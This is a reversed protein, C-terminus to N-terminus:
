QAIPRNGDSEIQTEDELVEYVSCRDRFYTGGPWPDDVYIDLCGSLRSSMRDIVLYTGKGIIHVVPPMPDRIRDYYPTGPSAACIGDLALAKAWEIGEAVTMCGVHSICRATNNSHPFDPPGYVTVNCQMIDDPDIAQARAYPYEIGNEIVGFAGFSEYEGASLSVLPPWEDEPKPKANLVPNMLFYLLIAASLIIIFFIIIRTRIRQRAMGDYTAADAVFMPNGKSLAVAFRNIACGFEFLYPDFENVIARSFAQIALRSERWPEMDRARRLRIREATMGPFDSDLHPKMNGKYDETWKITM